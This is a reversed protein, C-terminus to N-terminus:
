QEKLYHQRIAYYSLSAVAFTLATISVATALVGYGVPPSLAITMALLVVNLCVAIAAILYGLIRAWPRRWYLGFAVVSFVAVKVCPIVVDFVGFDLGNVYMLYAQWIDRIGLLNLVGLLLYVLYIM